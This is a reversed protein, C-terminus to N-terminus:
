FDSALIEQIRKKEVDCGLEMVLTELFIKIPIDNFNEKIRM